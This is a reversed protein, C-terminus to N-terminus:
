MLVSTVSTSGGLLGAVTEGLESVVGVLVEEVEVSSEVVLVLVLVLVLVSSVVGDGVMGAQAACGSVSVTVIVTLKPVESHEFVVCVPIGVLVPTVSGTAGMVAVPAEGVVVSFSFVM